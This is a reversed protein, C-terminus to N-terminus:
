AIKIVATSQSRNGAFSIRTVMVITTGPYMLALVWKIDSALTSYLPLPDINTTFDEASVSVNESGVM